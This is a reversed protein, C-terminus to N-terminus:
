LIDLVIQYEITFYTCLSGVAMMWKVHFSVNKRLSIFTNMGSIAEKIDTTMAVIACVACAFQTLITAMFYVVFMAMFNSQDTWRGACTQGDFFV